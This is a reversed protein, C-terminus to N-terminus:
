RAPRARDKDRRKKGHPPGAPAGAVGNAGTGRGLQQESGVEAVDRRYTEAILAVSVLSIISVLVM